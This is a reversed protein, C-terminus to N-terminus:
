DPKIPEGLSAIQIRAISRGGLTYTFVEECSIGIVPGYGWGDAKTLKWAAGDAIRVIEVSALDDLVRGAHGCGVAFQLERTGMGKGMDSRLRRPRLSAPDTTYPATMISVTPYLGLEHQRKGEGHTWIIDKGDSGVNSAGETDGPHHILSHTGRQDDYAWIGAKRYDGVQFLIDRDFFLARGDFQLGEPSMSSEYLPKGKSLDHGEHATIVGGYDHKLLWADGLQWASTGEKETDRYPMDPSLNRASGLMLADTNQDPGRVTFGFAGGHAIGRGYLRCDTPLGTRIAFDIPGDVSGVVWEFYAGPSPDKPGKAAARMIQLRAPGDAPIDFADISLPAEGDSWDTVMQRCGDIAATAPCPEWTIPPPMSAEDPPVWFTCGPAYTWPKWSEPVSAPRQNSPSTAGSPTSGHSWSAGSDQTAASPSDNCGSICLAVLM